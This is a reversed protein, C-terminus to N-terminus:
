GKEGARAWGGCNNDKGDCIETAPLVEGYCVGWQGDSNPRARSFTQTGTRCIGVDRTGAPGSYCSRTLGDVLCVRAGDPNLVDPVSDNDSDFLWAHTSYTGSCGGGRQIGCRELPSERLPDTM